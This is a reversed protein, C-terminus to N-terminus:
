KSIIRFRNEIYKYTFHSILLTLFVGLITIAILIPQSLFLKPKGDALETHVRFAFKIVNIITWWIAAHVMYISYSRSGLYILPKVTLIYRIKSDFPLLSLYVIMMCFFPPLLLSLRASPGIILIVILIILFALATLDNAPLKANRYYMYSLVGAFFAYLCRFMAMGTSPHQINTIFLLAVSALILVSSFIKFHKKFYLMGFAFIIYTYFEVSISWSPYNFTIRPVLIAQTMFINNIFSYLNNNTFAPTVAALGAKKESYYKALEFLLFVMLMAVHLPYLRLFRKKQFIIADKLTYIKDLYNFAIVFGSLAFFLDVLLPANVAIPNSTLISNPRFHHLVIAIAAIGRLADLPLTAAHTNKITAM